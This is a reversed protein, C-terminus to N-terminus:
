SSSHIPNMKKCHFATSETKKSAQNKFCKKEILDVM